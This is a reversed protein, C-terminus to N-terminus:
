TPDRRVFFTHRNRDPVREYSFRDVSKTALFVGLGGVPREEIPLDLDISARQQMPDYTAGTDEVRITLGDEDVEASVELVGDLGAESYGHTIINTAIEDVALRLRYETKKDLGAAAAATQVYEALRQLSELSGPLTLPKM